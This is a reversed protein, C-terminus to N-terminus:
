DYGDLDQEYYFDGFMKRVICNCKCLLKIMPNFIKILWTKKGKRFEMFLSSTNMYSENQPHFYGSANLIIWNYLYCCLKNINLISKKNHYEPFIPIYMALKRLREYNGKCGEGYVMPARIILIKFNQDELKLLDKEAALKTKGYFTSPKPFTERTICGSYDGYVAATSMFIFHKVHNAKARCAIKVPLRHNIEEYFDRMYKKEKRHVIASLHLVSDYISFDMKEWSGDAASVLDVDILKEDLSNVYEYFKKGIYSNAGIVLVRKM